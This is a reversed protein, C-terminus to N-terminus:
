CTQDGGQLEGSGQQKLCTVWLIESKKQRRNKDEERKREGCSSWDLNFYVEADSSGDELKGLINCRISTVLSWFLIIIMNIKKVAVNTFKKVSIFTKWSLQAAQIGTLLVTFACNLNIEGTLQLGLLKVFSINSTEINKTQKSKRLRALCSCSFWSSPFCFM